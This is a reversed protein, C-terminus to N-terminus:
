GTLPLLHFAPRPHHDVVQLVSGSRRRRARIANTGLRSRRDRHGEVPVLEIRQDARILEGERVKALAQRVDAIQERRCVAELLLESRHVDGFLEERGRGTAPALRATELEFEGDRRALASHYVAGTLRIARVVDREEDLVVTTEGHDGLREERRPD